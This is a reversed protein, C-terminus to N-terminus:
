QGWKKWERSPVEDRFFAVIWAIVVFPLFYAGVFFDQLDRLIIPLLVACAAMAIIITQAITSFLGRDHGRFYRVSYRLLTLYYIAVVAYPLADKFPM